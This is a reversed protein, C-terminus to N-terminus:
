FFPIHSPFSSRRAQDNKLPGPGQTQLGGWALATKNKHHQDLSLALVFFLPALFTLTSHLVVSNGRDSTFATPRCYLLGLSCRHPMPTETCPGCQPFSAWHLLLGKLGKTQTVKSEVRKIRRWHGQDIQFDLSSNLDQFKDSNDVRKQGTPFHLFGSLSIQPNTICM